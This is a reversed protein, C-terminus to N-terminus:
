PNSVLRTALVWLEKKGTGSRSSKFAIRTGDAVVVVHPPSMKLPQVANLDETDSTSQPLAGGGGATMSGEFRQIDFDRDRNESTPLERIKRHFDHSKRADFFFRRRREVLTWPKKAPVGSRCDARGRASRLSAWCFFVTFTFFAGFQGRLQFFLSKRQKAAPRQGCGLGMIGKTLTQTLRRHGRKALGNSGIAPM